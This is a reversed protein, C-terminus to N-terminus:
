SHGPSDINIPAYSDLELTGILDLTYGQAAWGLCPASVSDIVLNGQTEDLEIRQGGATGSEYLTADITGSVTFQCAAGGFDTDAVTLSIGDVYGDVADTLSKTAAGTAVFDWHGHQTFGFNMGGPGTCNIWGSSDVRGVVGPRTYVGSPFVGGFEVENCGWAVTQSGNQDYFVFDFAGDSEATYSGGTWVYYQHSAWSPSMSLLLALM